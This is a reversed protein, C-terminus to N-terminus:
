AGNIQNNGKRKKILEIKELAIDLKSLKQALEDMMKTYFFRNVVPRYIYIWILLLVSWFILNERTPDFYIFRSGVIIISWLLSVYTLNFM